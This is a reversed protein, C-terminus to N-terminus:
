GNRSAWGSCSLGTGSHAGMAGRSSGFASHGGKGCGARFSGHGPVLGSTFPATPIATTSATDKKMTRPLSADLEVRSAESEPSTAAGAPTECFAVAPLGSIPPKV